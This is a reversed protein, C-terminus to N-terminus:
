TAAGATEAKELAKKPYLMKAKQDFVCNQKILTLFGANKTRAGFHAITATLTIGEAPILARLEELTPLPGPTGQAAAPGVFITLM